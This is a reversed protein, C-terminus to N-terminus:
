HHDYFKGACKFVWVCYNGWYIESLDYLWSELSMEKGKKLGSKSELLYEPSCSTAEWALLTDIREEAHSMGEECTFGFM